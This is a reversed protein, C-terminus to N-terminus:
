PVNKSKGPSWNNIIEETQSLSCSLDKQLSNSEEFKESYSITPFNSHNVSDSFQSNLLSDVFGMRRTEEDNDVENISEETM